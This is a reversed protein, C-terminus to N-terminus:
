LSLGNRNLDEEVVYPLPARMALTVAIKSDVSGDTVNSCDVFM